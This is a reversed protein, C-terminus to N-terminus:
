PAPADASMLADPSMFGLVVSSQKAPSRGCSPESSIARVSFGRIERCVVGPDPVEGQIADLLQIAICATWQKSAASGARWPTVGHLRAALGRLSTRASGWVASSLLLTRGPSGWGVLIVM